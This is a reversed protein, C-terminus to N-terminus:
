AFIKDIKLRPQENATHEYVYQFIHMFHGFYYGPAWKKHQKKHWWKANPNAVNDNGDKYIHM